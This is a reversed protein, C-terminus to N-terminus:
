IGMKNLIQNANTSVKQKGYVAVTNACDSAFMGFKERSILLNWGNWFGTSNSKNMMKSLYKLKPEDLKYTSDRIYFFLSVTRRYLHTSLLRNIKKNERPHLPHGCYGLLEPFLKHNVM